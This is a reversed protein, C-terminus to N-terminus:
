ELRRAAIDRQSGRQVKLRLRACQSLTWRPRRHNQCRRFVIVVIAVFIIVLQRLARARAPKETRASAPAEDESSSMKACM